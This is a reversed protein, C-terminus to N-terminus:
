LYKYSRKDILYFWSKATRFTFIIYPMYNKKCDNNKYVSIQRDIKEAKFKRNTINPFNKRNQYKCKKIQTIYNDYLRIFLTFILLRCVANTLFIHFSGAKPRLRRGSAPEKKNCDKRYTIFM